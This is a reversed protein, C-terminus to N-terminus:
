DRLRLLHYERKDGEREGRRVYDRAQITSITPAYTSPRGIGLDEMKKVLSAETYRAPPMTFRETATIDGVKLPMGVTMPPLMGEDYKGDGNETQYVKMFGDFTVVEGEARFFDYGESLQYRSKTGADPIIGIEVNTKEVVADAMQSAVARKWILDYLKNEDASGPIKRNSIYTPRIAEHAEQAGKSNTHYHRVHLYSDGLTEKVVRSIESIALQSLNLSDTRMYTIHGDEYLKQAVMMTKNVSFGLKRSADQQLTSTTFPPAPSRKVPKVVVDRVKFDSHECDLLFDSAEKISTLRHPYE